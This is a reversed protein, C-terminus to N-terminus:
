IMVRDLLDGALPGSHNINFVSVENELDTM